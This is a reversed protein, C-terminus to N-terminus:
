GAIVLDDHGILALYRWRDLTSGSSSVPVGPAAASGLPGTTAEACPPCVLDRTCGCFLADDLSVFSDFAFRRPARVRASGGRRMRNVVQRAFMSGRPIVLVAGDVRACVSAFVSYVFAPTTARAPGGGGGVFHREVRSTGPHTGVSRSWSPGDSRRQAQPPPGAIGASSRHSGPWGRSPRPGDRHHQM